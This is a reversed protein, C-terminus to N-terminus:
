RRSCLIPFHVNAKPERASSETAQDRFQSTGREEQGFAHVVRISSLGEQAVSLVESEREQISRFERRVHEAYYRIAWIVFPVIAMSLLTLQWDLMLM